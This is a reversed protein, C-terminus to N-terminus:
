RRSALVQRVWDPLLMVGALIGFYFAWPILALGDSVYSTAIVPFAYVLWCATVLIARANPQAVQRSRLFRKGDRVLTYLSFPLSFFLSIPALAMAWALALPPIALLFYPLALALAVIEPWVARSLAYWRGIYFYPVIFPATLCVHYLGLYAIGITTPGFVFMPGILNGGAHTSNFVAMVTFLVVALFNLGTIFGIGRHELGQRRAYALALKSIALALVSNVSLALLVGSLVTGALFPEINSIHHGRWLPLVLRYIGYCGPAVIALVAALVFIQDGIKRRVRPCPTPKGSNPEVSGDVTKPDEPM